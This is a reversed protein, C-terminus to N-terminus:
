KRLVEHFGETWRDRKERGGEKEVEEQAKGERMRLIQEVLAEKEEQEVSDEEVQVPINENEGKVFTMSRNKPNGLEPFPLPASLDALFQPSGKSHLGLLFVRPNEEADKVEVVAISGEQGFFSRSHVQISGLAQKNKGMFLRIFGLILAGLLIGWWWPMGLEPFQQQPVQRDPKAQERLQEQLATSLSEKSEEQVIKESELNPSPSTDLLYQIVEQDAIPVKASEEAWLMGVLLIM